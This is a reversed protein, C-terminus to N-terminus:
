ELLNYRCFKVAASVMKMLKFACIEVKSVIKFFFIKDGPIWKFM